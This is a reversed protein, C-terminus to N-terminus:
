KPKEPTSIQSDDTKNKNESKMFKTSKQRRPHAKRKFTRGPRNPLKDKSAVRLAKDFREQWEPAGCPPLNLLFSQFTNWVETFSLRRPPLRAAAAAQRRFQIVLNYAVISTLLEKQVMEDTRCRITELSMTVKLDRIDHEVDYRHSYFEAAMEASIGLTTVLSLTEGNDLTVEHLFVDVGAEAPVDPNTKRDKASPTWMLRYTKTFDTEELLEAQRRMSKFRSKTLRFLLKHGEGTMAWAVSFIGFGSDAFAISNPPLRKALRAALGAESTNGEGYNGEGYMAGLEPPLAAGSQVEHAVLMLMVPWVTEGHQNTAPPYAKRLESTPSLTMTTGAINFGGRDGYWSPTQQIFSDCVRSAFHEVVSLPLRKRADRYAGSKESVSLTGERVRRNDPLLQRNESLVDKVVANLTKGKGLPQLILMWITITTTYVTAAGTPALRELEEDPIIQRLMDIAASLESESLPVQDESMVDSRDSLCCLQLVERGPAFTTGFMEDM